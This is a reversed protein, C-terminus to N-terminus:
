KKTKEYRNKLRKMAIKIQIEITKELNKIFNLVKIHLWIWLITVM